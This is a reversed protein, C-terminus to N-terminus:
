QKHFPDTKGLTSKDVEVPLKGKSELSILFDLANRNLGSPIFMGGVTVGTTTEKAPIYLAEAGSELNESTSTVSETPPVVDPNSIIPEVTTVMPAVEPDVKSGNFFIFYVAVGIVLLIVVGLIILKKPDKAATPLSAVGPNHLSLNKQSFDM